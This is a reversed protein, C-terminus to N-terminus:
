KTHSNKITTAINPPCNNHGSVHSITLPRKQKEFSIRCIELTLSITAYICSGMLTLLLIIEEFTM